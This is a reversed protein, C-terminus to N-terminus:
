GAGHSRSKLNQGLTPRMSLGYPSRLRNQEHGGTSSSASAVAQRAFGALELSAPEVVIRRRLVGAICIGSTRRATVMPCPNAMAKKTRPMYLRHNVTTPSNMKAAACSSSRLMSNWDTSSVTRM